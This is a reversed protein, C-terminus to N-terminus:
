DPTKPRFFDRVKNVLRDLLTSPVIEKDQSLSAQINEIEIKREIVIESIKEILTPRMEFVRAINEHNIEIIISDEKAFISANCVEGTLLSMEGFYHGSDLTALYIPTPTDLTFFVDVRGSYIIFLSSNSQGQELIREPPGFHHCIAGSALISMEDKKLVRFLDTGKLFKEVLPKSLPEPLPVEQLMIKVRERRCKYWIISLVEDNVVSEDTETTFYLLQYLHNMEKMMVLSATPIPDKLVKNSQQAASVLINKYKSPSITDQLPFNLLIGRVPSPNSLNVIPLKSIVSNPISLYNKERTFLKVFRWSIEIVKGINENVKIWDGETFEKSTNIGLGAFIDSLTAQASYGLIIAMVGSATFIGFVSKDYVFHVIAAITLIIISISVLDRFIRSIVIGKSLFFKNWIWYETLQNVLYTLSLWWLLKIVNHISILLSHDDTILHLIGSYLYLVSFIFFVGSGIWIKRTTRKTFKIIILQYLFLIFLLVLVFFIGKVFAEIYM